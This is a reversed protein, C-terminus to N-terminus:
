PYEGLRQLWTRELVREDDNLRLLSITVQGIESRGTLRGAELSFHEAWSDVRPNFLRSFQGTAPVISGVDTGKTRNCRICSLALNTANTQGGHKRSIVHDVECGALLAWAPLRCYECRGEARAAVVRRLPQGISEPM